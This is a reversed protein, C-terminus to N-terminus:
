NENIIRKATEIIKDGINENKNIFVFEVHNKISPDDDKSYDEMIMKMTEYFVITQSNREEESMGVKKHSCMERLVNLPTAYEIAAYFPGEDSDVRYCSHVYKRQRIGGVTERVPELNESYSIRKDAKSIDHHISCDAPVLILLKDLISDKNQSSITNHIFKPLVKKLYGFYFGWGLGVAPNRARARFFWTLHSVLAVVLPLELKALTSVAASLLGFSISLILDRTLNKRNFECNLATKLLAGKRGKFLLVNQLVILVRSFLVYGAIGATGLLVLQIEM